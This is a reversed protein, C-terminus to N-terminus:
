FASSGDVSPRLNICEKQSSLKITVKGFMYVSGMVSVRMEDEDCFAIVFQNCSLQIGIGNM